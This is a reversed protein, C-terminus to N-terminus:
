RRGWAFEQPGTRDEPTAVQQNQGLGRRNLAFKSCFGFHTKASEPGPSGQSSGGGIGIPIHSLALGLAVKQPGALDQSNRTLGFNPLFTSRTEAGGLSGGSDFELTNSSLAQGLVVGGPGWPCYVM